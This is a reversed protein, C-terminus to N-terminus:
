PDGHPDVWGSTSGEIAINGSERAMRLTRREDQYALTVALDELPRGRDDIELTRDSGAEAALVSVGVFVGDDPYIRLFPEDTQPNHTVTGTSDLLAYGSGDGFFQLRGVKALFISRHQAARLDRALLVAANELTVDASAFYWRVTTAAGLSLLFLVLLLGLVTFRRPAQSRGPM